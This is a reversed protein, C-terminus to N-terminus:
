ECFCCFFSFPYAVAFGSVIDGMFLLPVKSHKLHEELIARNKKPGTKANSILTGAHEIVDKPFVQDEGTVMCDVGFYSISLQLIEGLKEEDTMSDYYAELQKETLM